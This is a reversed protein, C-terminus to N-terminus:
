QMTGAAGLETQKPVATKSFALYVISVAGVLPIIQLLGIWAPKSLRQAIRMWMYVNVAISLYNALTVLISFSTNLVTSGNLLQLFFSLLFPLVWIVGLQAIELELFINWVPIYARWTQPTNTKRAVKKLCEAFFIYVVVGVLFTLFVLFIITSSTHDSFVGQFNQMSGMLATDM